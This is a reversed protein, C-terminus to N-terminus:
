VLCFLAFDKIKGDLKLDFNLPFPFCDDPVIACMVKHM